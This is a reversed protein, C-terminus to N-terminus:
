TGVSRETGVSTARGCARRRRSPPFVGGATLVGADTAQPRSAGTYRVDVTSRRAATAGDEEDIPELDATNDVFEDNAVGAETEM